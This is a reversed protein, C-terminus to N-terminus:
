RTWRRAVLGGDKRCRGAKEGARMKRTKSIKEVTAEGGEGLPKIVQHPGNVWGNLSMSFDTKGLM